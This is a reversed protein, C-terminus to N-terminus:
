TANNLPRKWMFAALFNAVSYEIRHCCSKGEYRQAEVRRTRKYYVDRDTSSGPLWESRYSIGKIQARNM